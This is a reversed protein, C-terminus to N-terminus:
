EFEIKNCDDLKVWFRVAKNPKKKPNFRDNISVSPLSKCYFTVSSYNSAGKRIYIRDVQLITGAPLTIKIKENSHKACLEYHVKLDNNYKVYEPCAQEAERCAKTYEDYDMFKHRGLFGGGTRIERDPYNVVYDIDRMPPVEKENIWARPYDLYYGYSKALTVNRFEPYLDFSWDQTLKLQTKIEPIFLRM